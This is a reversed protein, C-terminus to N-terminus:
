LELPLMSGPYTLRSCSSIGIDRCLRSRWLYGVVTTAIRGGAIQIIHIRPHPTLDPVIYLLFLHRRSILTGYSHSQVDSGVEKPKFMSGLKREYELVIM